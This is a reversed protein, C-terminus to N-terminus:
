PKKIAPANDGGVAELNNWGREYYTPSNTLAMNIYAKALNDDKALHAYLGLNNELAAGDLYKGAIDKATDLDGSAGYVMALNLEIQRRQAPAKSVRSAQDLAHIADAYQHDVAQSLGMNNLVAPNDPSFKLAEAYYAMAEPIMNKSTFLIGLANLTRWRTPDKAIVESFERGADVTKGLAALTLAEGEKADLNDPNERVLQAFMGQARDLNGLRRQSEALGLQYRLKQEPSIKESGLLQEYFQSARGFDGNAAAAKAAEEQTDLVGKVAPAPMAAFTKDPDIWQKLSYDSCAGLALTAALVFLRPAHSM